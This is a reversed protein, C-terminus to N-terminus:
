LRGLCGRQAADWTCAADVTARPGVVLEPWIRDDGPPFRVRLRVLEPMRPQDRWTDRWRAVARDGRAAGFYAIEVGAVGDLLVSRATPVLPSRDTDPKWALVLAGDAGLGLTYRLYTGPPMAAPAPADFSLRAADGTFSVQGQNALSYAPNARTIRDRLLGQAAEVADIRPGLRSTAREWVRHGLVFGDQLMVLLMGLLGLAVLLEILTLGAEGRRAAPSEIRM